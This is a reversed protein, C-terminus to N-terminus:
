PSPPPPLGTGGDAAFQGVVITVTDGETVETGSAPNQDLVQGDQTQDTTDQHKVKVKLKRGELAARASAEDQGTVDPVTVKPKAKAVTLTVRSGEDVKTGGAPTQALVQGETQDSEKEVIVVQFGRAELQKEASSKTLTVVDPVQVQKPGTSVFVVVQSRYPAITGGPPDTRIVRDKEVTASAKERVDYVFGVKALTKQARSIGFGDVTPVEVRGPGSSVILTVTSGKDVQKGRAPDSGLVKGPVAQNRQSRTKVDFGRAKLRATARDVTLGAVGPVAVQETKNSLTFALFGALALLLLALAVFPWKARERREEGDAEWPPVPPPGVATFGATHGPGGGRGAAIERRADDLALVFEEASQFRGNPDKVLARAVVAELAPHV